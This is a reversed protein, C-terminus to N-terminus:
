VADLVALLHSRLCQPKTHQIQCAANAQASVSIAESTEGVATFANQEDVHACSDLANARPFQAPESGTPSLTSPGTMSKTPDRNVGADQPVPLGVPLMSTAPCHRAVYEDNLEMNALFQQESPEQSSSAAGPTSIEMSKIGCVQVSLHSAVNTGKKESQPSVTQADSGSFNAAM